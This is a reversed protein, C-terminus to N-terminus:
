TADDSFCSGFAYYKNVAQELMSCINRIVVKTDADVSGAGVKRIEFCKGRIPTEDGEM